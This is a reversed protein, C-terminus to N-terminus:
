SWDSGSGFYDHSSSDFGSGSSDHHSFLDDNNFGYPNGGVDFGAENDSVMPLGTAPNICIRHVPFDDDIGIGFSHSPQDTWSTEVSKWSERSRSGLDDLLEGMDRYRDHFWEDDDEDFRAEAIDLDFAGTIAPAIGMLGPSDIQRDSVIDCASDVPSDDQDRPWGSRLWLVGFAVGLVLLFGEM